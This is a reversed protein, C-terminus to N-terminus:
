AIAYFVNNILAIPDMYKSVRARIPATQVMLNARDFWGVKMITEFVCAFAYRM